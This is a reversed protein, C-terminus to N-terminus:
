KSLEKLRNIVDVDSEGYERIPQNLQRLKFQAKVIASSSDDVQDPLSHLVPTEPIPKSKPKNNIDVAIILPNLKPLDKIFKAKDVADFYEVIDFSKENENSILLTDNSSINQEFKIAEKITPPYNLVVFRGVHNKQERIKLIEDNVIQTFIGAKLRYTFNYKLTPSEEDVSEFTQNFLINYKMSTDSLQKSVLENLDIVGVNEAGGLKDVVQAVIKSDSKNKYTYPILFCEENNELTLHKKQTDHIYAAWEEESFTKKYKELNKSHDQERLRQMIAAYVMTGFVGVLLFWKFDVKDENRRNSAFRVQRFLHRSPAAPKLARLPALRLMTPTTSHPSFSPIPYHYVRTETHLPLIMEFDM